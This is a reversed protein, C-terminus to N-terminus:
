YSSNRNKSRFAALTINVSTSTLICKTLSVRRMFIKCGLHKKSLVNFSDIANIVEERIIDTTEAIQSVDIGLHIPSDKFPSATSELKVHYTQIKKENHLLHLDAQEVSINERRENIEFEFFV